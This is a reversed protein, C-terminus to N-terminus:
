TGLSLSDTITKTQHSSESANAGESGASPAVSKQTFQYAFSSGLDAFAFGYLGHSSVSYFAATGCSRVDSNLKIAKKWSSEGDFGHM